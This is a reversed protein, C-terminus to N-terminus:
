RQATVRCMKLTTLFIFRGEVVMFRRFKRLNGRPAVASNESNTRGIITRFILRAVARTKSDSHLFIPALFLQQNHTSSKVQLDRAPVRTAIQQDVVGGSLGFASRRQMTMVKLVFPKVHNPSFEDNLHAVIRQVQM